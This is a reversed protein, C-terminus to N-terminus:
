WNLVPLVPKVSRLPYFGTSVPFFVPLFWTFVPKLGTQLRNSSPKFRTQVQNSGPKFGTQVPKITVTKYIQFRLRLRLVTEYGFDYGYGLATKFIDFRGLKIGPILGLVEQDRTKQKVM